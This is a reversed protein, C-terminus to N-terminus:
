SAVTRTIPGYRSVYDVPSTGGKAAFWRAADLVGIAETYLVEGDVTLSYVKDGDRDYGVFTPTNDNDM